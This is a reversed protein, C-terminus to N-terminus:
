VRCKHDTRWNWKSIPTKWDKGYVYRLYPEGLTKIVAGSKTKKEVPVMIKAPYQHKIEDDASHGGNDWLSNWVKNGKRYFIMVDTKIGNRELSVELGYDLTPFYWFYCQNLNTGFVTMIRFGYDVAIDILKWDFDDSFLGIDTDTDHEIIQGDRVIGLATGYIAFSKPIIELLTVVNEEAQQIDM